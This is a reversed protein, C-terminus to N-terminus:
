TRVALHDLISQRLLPSAVDWIKCAAYALDAEIIDGLEHEGLRRARILEESAFNVIIALPTAPPNNNM